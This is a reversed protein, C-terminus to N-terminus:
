RKGSTRLMGSIADYVIGKLDVGEAIKAAAAEFKDSLKGMERFSMSNYEKMMGKRSRGYSTNLARAVAEGVTKKVLDTATDMGAALASDIDDAVETDEGASDSAVHDDDGVIEDSDTPDKTGEEDEQGVNADGAEEESLIMKAEVLMKNVKALNMRKM